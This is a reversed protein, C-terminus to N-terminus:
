QKTIFLIFFHFSESMTDFYNPLDNDHMQNDPFCNVAPLNVSVLICLLIEIRQRM